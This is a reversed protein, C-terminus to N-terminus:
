FVSWVCECLGSQRSSALSLEEHCVANLDHVRICHQTGPPLCGTSYINGASCVLFERDPAVCSSVSHLACDGCAGKCFWACNPTELGIGVRSYCIYNPLPEVLAHASPGFRM